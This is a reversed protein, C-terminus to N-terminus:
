SFLMEVPLSSTGGHHLRVNAEFPANEFTKAPVVIEFLRQSRANLKGIHTKGPAPEIVGVQSKFQFAGTYGNVGDDFPTRLSVPVVRPTAATNVFQLKLFLDVGYLGRNARSEPEAVSKDGAFLAVDPNVSPALRHETLLLFAPLGGSVQIAQNLRIEVASYPWVGRSHGKWSGVGAPIAAVPEGTRKRIDSKDAASRLTYNLASNSLLEFEVLAFQHFNDNSTISASTLQVTSQPPITIDGIPSATGALADRAIQRGAAFYDGSHISQSLRLGKTRIPTDGHNELTLGVQIASGTRNLHWLLVRYTVSEESRHRHSCLCQSDPPLKDIVEWNDSFMLFHNKKVLERAAYPLQVPSNAAAPQLAPGPPGADVDLTLALNLDPAPLEDLNGGMPSFHAESALRLNSMAGALVNEALVRVADAPIANCVPNNNAIDGGKKLVNQLKASCEDLSFVVSVPDPGICFIINGRNSSKVFNYIFGSDSM